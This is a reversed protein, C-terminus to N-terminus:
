EYLYTYVTPITRTLTLALAGGHDVLVLRTSSVLPDGVSDISVDLGFLVVLVVAVASRGPDQHGCALQVNIARFILLLM